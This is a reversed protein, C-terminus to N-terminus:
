WHTIPGDFQGEPKIGSKPYILSALTWIKPLELEVSFLGLEESCHFYVWHLTEFLKCVSIKVPFGSYFSALVFCIAYQAGLGYYWGSCISIHKVFLKACNASQFLCWYKTNKSQLICFFIISLCLRFLSLCVYHLKDTLYIPYEWRSTEPLINAYVQGSHWYSVKLALCVHLIHKM